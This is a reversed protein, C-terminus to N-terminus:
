ISYERYKTNKGQAGIEISIKIRKFNCIRAIERGMYTVLEDFEYANKDVLISM